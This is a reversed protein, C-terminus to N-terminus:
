TGDRPAGASLDIGSPQVGQTSLLYKEEIAAIDKQYKVKMAEKEDEPLFAADIGNMVFQEVDSLSFGFQDIIKYYDDTLTIDSVSPDDTNITVNIEQDYYRKFPHTDLSEAAGTQINSTPCMELPIGKELIEQEVTPDEFSRVGHGIRDAKLDNISVRVNEAGAAEGAHVTVYLGAEKAKQFVPAYPGPPYNYEDNALDLGVVGKDMYKQALQLVDEAHEVGMQREVILILGIDTDYEKKAKDLGDFVGQMVEDIDLNYRESMYVPSFRIEAYKVNDNNADKVAEYTIEEIADKDTFVKGITDFKSIFDLLTKDKDTVQLYPILEQKDYTPLEIGRRNAISLFTDPEVAGELHRHLDVKPIDKLFGKLSKEDLVEKAPLNRLEVLDKNNASETKEQSVGDKLPTFATSNSHIRNISDM